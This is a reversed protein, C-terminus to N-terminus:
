KLAAFGARFGAKMDEDTQDMISQYLEIAAGFSGARFLAYCQQQNVTHWLTKLDWGFLVVFEDYMLHIPLRYFFTSANVAATFHEVAETYRVGNLAINGLQARLYAEVVRCAVPDVDSCTALEGIRLFAEQHENANFLAIAKILFLFRDTKSDGNTFMSALDFSIRAAMVQKKGCLAIGKCIHGIFSTQISVSQIADQFAQDWDCKRAMVFARNAYATHDNPHAV